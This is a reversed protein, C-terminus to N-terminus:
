DDVWLPNYDVGHKELFLRLEDRFSRERHYEAQTEIYRVVEDRSSESVSFAAYGAQWQFPNRPLQEHMWSSSNSKLMRVVDAIAHKPLYRVLIHVHDPMGGIALPVADINRLIGGLYAHLRPALDDQIWPSRGKTSFVLHALLHSYTQSM